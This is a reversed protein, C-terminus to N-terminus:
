NMCIVCLCNHEVVVEGEGVVTAVAVTFEVSVKVVSAVNGELPRGLGVATDANELAEANGFIKDFSDQGSHRRYVVM